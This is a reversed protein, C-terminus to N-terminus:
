RRVIMLLAAVMFVGALTGMLAMGTETEAQKHDGARHYTRARRANNLALTFQIAAALVLVVAVGALIGDIVSMVLHM